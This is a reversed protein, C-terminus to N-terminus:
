RPVVDGSNKKDLRLRGIVRLMAYEMDEAHKASLNVVVKCAMLAGYFDTASLDETYQMYSAFAAPSRTAPNDSRSTWIVQMLEEDVVQSEEPEKLADYVCGYTLDFEAQFRLWFDTKLYVNSGRNGKMEGKAMEVPTQGDRSRLSNLREESVYPFKNVIARLAADDSNWRTL